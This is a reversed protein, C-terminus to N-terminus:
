EGRVFTLVGMGSMSTGRGFTGTLTTSERNILLWGAGVSGRGDQWSFECLNAFQLEGVSLEAQTQTMSLIYRVPRDHARFNAYYRGDGLQDIRLEGGIGEIEGRWTGAFDSPEEYVEPPPHPARAPGVGSCGVLTCALASGCVARLLSPAVWTLAAPM